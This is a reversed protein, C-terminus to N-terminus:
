AISGFSFPDKLQDGIRDTRFSEKSSFDQMRGQHAVFGPDKPCVSHNELLAVEWSGATPGPPGLGLTGQPANCLQVPDIPLHRLGNAAACTM